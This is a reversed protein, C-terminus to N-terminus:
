DCSRSRSARSCGGGSLDAARIAETRNMGAQVLYALETHLSPGHDVPAFGTENADTGAIVTLVGAEDMARVNDLALGFAADARDGLRGDIIARMMVLTPSVVTGSERLRNLTAEPLPRDFPIHTLM